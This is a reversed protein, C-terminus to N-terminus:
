FICINEINLLYADYHNLIKNLNNKMLYVYKKIFMKVKLMKVNVENIMQSKNQTYPIFSFNITIKKLYNITESNTRLYNRELSKHLDKIM